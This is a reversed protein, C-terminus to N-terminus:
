DGNLFKSVIKIVIMTILHAILPYLGLHVSLTPIGSTYLGKPIILILSLYIFYFLTSKLTPGSGNAYMFSMKKERSDDFLMYISIVRDIM